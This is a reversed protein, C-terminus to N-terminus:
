TFDAPNRLRDLLLTITDKQVLLWARKSASLDKQALDSDIRLLAEYGLTKVLEVLAEQDM